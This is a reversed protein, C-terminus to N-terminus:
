ETDVHFYYIHGVAFAVQQAYACQKCLPTQPQWAFDREFGLPVVQVNRGPREVVTNREVDFEIVRMHVFM